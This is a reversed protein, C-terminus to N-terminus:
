KIFIIKEKENTISIIRPQNDTKIILRNKGKRIQNNKLESNSNNVLLEKSIMVETKILSKLKLITKQKKKKIGLIEINQTENIIPKSLILIIVIGYCKENKDNFTYSQNSLLVFHKEDIKHILSKTSASLKDYYYIQNEIVIPLLSYNAEIKKFIENKKDIDPLRRAKEIWEESENYNKFSISDKQSFGISTILLVIFTIGKKIKLIAM